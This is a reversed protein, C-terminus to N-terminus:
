FYHVSRCFRYSRGVFGNISIKRKYKGFENRVVNIENRITNKEDDQLGIYKLEKTQFFMDHSRYLTRSLLKLIANLILCIRHKYNITRCTKLATATFIM